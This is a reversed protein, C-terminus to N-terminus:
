SRVAPPPESSSRPKEVVGEAVDAPRLGADEAGERALYSFTASVQRTKESGRFEQWAKYLSDADMGQVSIAFEAFAAQRRKADQIEHVTYTYAEYPLAMNFRCSHFYQRFFVAGTVDPYGICRGWVSQVFQSHLKSDADGKKWSFPRQPGNYLADLFDDVEGDIEAIFLLYTSKLSDAPKQGMQPLLDDIIQLRAMHLMPCERFVHEEYQMAEQGSLFNRIDEIRNEPDNQRYEIPSLAVVTKHTNKDFYKGKKM